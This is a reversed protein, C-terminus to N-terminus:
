VSSAALPPAGLSACRARRARASPRMRKAVRSLRPSMRNAASVIATPRYRQPLVLRNDPDLNRTPDASGNPRLRGLIQPGVVGIPVARHLSPEPRRGHESRPSMRQM